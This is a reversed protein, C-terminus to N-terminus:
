HFVLCLEMQDICTIYLVLRTSALFKYIPKTSRRTSCYQIYRRTLKMKSSVSFTATQPYKTFWLLVPVTCVSWPVYAPGVLGGDLPVLVDRPRGLRSSWRPGGYSCACSQRTVLSDGVKVLTRENYRKIGGDVTRICKCPFASSGQIANPSGYHLTQSGGGVSQLTCNRGASSSGTYSYWWIISQSWKLQRSRSVIYINQEM